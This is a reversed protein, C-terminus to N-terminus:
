SAALPIDQYRGAAYVLAKEPREVATMAEVAGFIVTHDGARHSSDVRCVFSANAGQLLPVGNENRNWVAPSIAMRKGGYHSSICDQGASLINVSFVGRALLGPLMGSENRICCLLLLPDLSVATVANATMASIHEDDSQVAIVTIGTVFRGMLQRFRQQPSTM